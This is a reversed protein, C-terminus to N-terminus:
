WRGRYFVLITTKGQALDGETITRGDATQTTFAPFSAGAKAPGTYEPLRVAATLAFWQFSALAAAGVLTVLRPWTRRQRVAMFVLVVAMTTLIPIYWPVFMRQFVGFQVGYALIPLVCLAMGLLLWGRGSSPAAAGAPSGSANEM